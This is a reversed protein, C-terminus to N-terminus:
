EIPMVSLSRAGRSRLGRLTAFYRDTVATLSTAALWQPTIGAAIATRLTRQAGTRPVPQALLMRASSAQWM